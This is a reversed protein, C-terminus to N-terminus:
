GSQQLKSHRQKCRSVNLCMECRFDVNFCSKSCADSLHLTRVLQIILLAFINLLCVTTQTTDRGIVDSPLLPVQKLNDCEIAPYFSFSFFFGTTLAEEQSGRMVRGRQDRWLSRAIKNCHFPSLPVSKWNWLITSPQVCTTTHLVYFSLRLSYGADKWLMACRHCDSGFILIISPDVKLNCFCKQARIMLKLM